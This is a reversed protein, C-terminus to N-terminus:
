AATVQCAGAVAKAAVQVEAVGGAAAAAGRGEPGPGATGPAEPQFCMREGWVGGEAM